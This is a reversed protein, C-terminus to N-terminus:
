MSPIRSSKAHSRIFTGYVKNTIVIHRQITVILCQKKIKLHTHLLDLTSLKGSGKGLACMAIFLAANILALKCTYILHCEQIYIHSPLLGNVHNLYWCIFYGSYREATQISRDFPRYNSILAFKSLVPGYFFMICMYVALSPVIIVVLLSSPM